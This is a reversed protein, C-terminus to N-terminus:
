KLFSFAVQVGLINLTTGVKAQAQLRNLFKNWGIKHPLHACAPNVCLFSFSSSMMFKLKQHMGGFHVKGGQNQLPSLNQQKIAIKEQYNNAEPHFIQVVYRGTERNLGEVIVGSKGNLDARSNLGSVKVPDGLRLRLGRHSFNM